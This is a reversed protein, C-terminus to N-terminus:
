ECGPKIYLFQPTNCRKFGISGSVIKILYSIGIPLLNEQQLSLIANKTEERQAVVDRSTFTSASFGNSYRM